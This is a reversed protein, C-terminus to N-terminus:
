TNNINKLECAVAEPSLVLSKITEGELSQTMGADLKEMIGNIAPISCEVNGHLEHGHLQAEVASFVERVTITEIDRAPIYTMDDKILLLINKDLLGDIVELVPSVPLELRSVISNLTWRKSGSYNSLGILYMIVLALRYKFHETFMDRDNKLRLTAPFQHHFTVKVGILVILWNFYLWLMFVLILAFGKYIASYQGSVLFQAFAWSLAQWLIGAVIGGILASRFKVKTNPLLYYIMTFTIIILLFPILKGLFLIIIGFFEIQRLQLVVKNSLITTTIGLSVGILLPGVLLVSLYDRFKQLINRSKKIQWLENFSEEIKQVTNTVTYLLFAIGVAGLIRVNIRDVYNIISNTIESSKPGIPELFNHLTPALYNHAGLAKSLAFAVALLPVFTLLTTYVLSSASGSYAGKKFDDQIKYAFRAWTVLYRRPRSMGSTDLQWLTSNFFTQTTAFTKKPNLAKLKMIKIIVFNNFSQPPGRMRM